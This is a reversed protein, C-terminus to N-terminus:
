DCCDTQAAPDPSKWVCDHKRERRTVLTSKNVVNTQTVPPKGTTGTHLRDHNGYKLFSLSSHPPTAHALEPIADTTGM